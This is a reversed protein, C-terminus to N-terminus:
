HQGPIAVVIGVSYVIGPKHFSKGGDYTLSSSFSDKKWEDPTVSMQAMVVDKGIDDNFETFSVTRNVVEKMGVGLEKLIKVVNSWVIAAQKGYDGAVGEALEGHADSAWQTSIYALSAGPPVVTVTSFLDKYPPSGASTNFHKPSAMNLTLKFPLQNSKLISTKSKEIAKDLTETTSKHFSIYVYLVVTAVALRFGLQVMAQL